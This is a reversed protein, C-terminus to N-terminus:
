KKALVLQLGNPVPRQAGDSPSNMVGRRGNPRRAVMTSSGGGDLNIADEAGLSLLLEALERLTLGVSTRQRGDAVVLLLRGTDRDVGVATRPHKVADDLVTVRGDQLLLTSGGIAIRPDGVARVRLRVRTGVPLGDQLQRAGRGVGVLLRGEIRHGKAPRANSVVRGRRVVVERVRRQGTEDTVARGPSPGWAPTYVGIGDPPLVPSNVNTVVLDPRGVVRAVLPTEGVHVRNRGVVTLTVNRGSRPGQRVAGQDVGVGRPAGTDGIDFFDGNVAGVARPLLFSTLPARDAVRTTSAYRLRLRPAALRADLLHVRVTRGRADPQDWRRFWLGPAVKRTVTAKTTVRLRGDRTRPGALAGSAGDSSHLWRDRDRDAGPPAGAATPVVPAVLAVALVGAAVM